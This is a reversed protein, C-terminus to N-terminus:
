PTPKSSPSPFSLEAVRTLPSSGDISLRPSKPSRVSLGQFTPMRKSSSALSSRSKPTAGNQLSMIAYAAIEQDNSPLALIVDQVNKPLSRLIDAARKGSADIPNAVRAGSVPSCLRGTAATADFVSLTLDM